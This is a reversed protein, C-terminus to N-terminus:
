LKPVTRQDLAGWVAREVSCQCLVAAFAQWLVLRQLVATLADCALSHLSAHLSDKVAMSSNFVACSAM